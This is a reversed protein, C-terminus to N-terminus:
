KKTYVEFVFKLSGWKKKYYKGIVGGNKVEFMYEFLLACFERFPTPFIIKSLSRNYVQQSKRSNPIKRIEVLFLFGCETVYIELSPSILLKQADIEFAGFIYKGEKYLKCKKKCLLYFPPLNYSEFSDTEM